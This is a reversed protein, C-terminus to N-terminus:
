EVKFVFPDGVATIEAAEKPSDIVPVNSCGTLTALAIMTAGAIWTKM